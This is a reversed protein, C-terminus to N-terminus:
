IKYNRSALFNDVLKVKKTREKLYNPNKELQKNELAWLYMHLNAKDIFKPTETPVEIYKTKM